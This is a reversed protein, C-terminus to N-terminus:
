EKGLEKDMIYTIEKQAELPLSMKSMVKMVIKKADQAELRSDKIFTLIRKAKRTNDAEVRLAKEIMKSFKISERKFDDKSLEKSIEQTTIAEQTKTSTSDQCSTFNIALALSLVIPLKM